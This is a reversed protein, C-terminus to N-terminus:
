YFICVHTKLSMIKREARYESGSTALTFHPTGRKVGNEARICIQLVFICM